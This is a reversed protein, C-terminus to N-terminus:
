SKQGIVVEIRVLIGNARSYRTISPWAVSPWVEYFLWPRWVNHRWRIRFEHGNFRDTVEPNLATHYSALGELALSRRRGLQWYLGTTHGILAGKKGKEWYFDTYTRFFLNDRDFFRRRFDFSLRDEFGSKSYHYYSNGVNVTWDDGAEFTYRTNLRGFYQVDGDRQRVGVDVNVDSNERASRIFRLALSANQNSGAPAQQGDGTDQNEDDETSILLKLKRETRPLVARLKFSPDFEFDEGNARVGDLRIRAWSENSVADDNTGARSFFGDVQGMFNGFRESAAAQADDVIIISRRMLGLEADDPIPQRQREAGSNEETEDAVSDSSEDAAGTASSTNGQQALVLPTFMLVAVVMMWALYIKHM